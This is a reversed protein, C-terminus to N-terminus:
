DEDALLADRKKIERLITLMARRVMPRLSFVFATEGAAEHREVAKLFADSDSTTDYILSGRPGKRNQFAIVYCREQENEILRPLHPKLAIALGCAAPVVLGREHMEQAVLVMVADPYSWRRRKGQKGHQKIPLRASWWRLTADPQGTAAEMVQRDINM